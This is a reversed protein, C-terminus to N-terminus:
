PTPQPAAQHDGEPGEHGGLTSLRSPLRNWMMEWWWWGSVGRIAFVLPGTTHRRAIKRWNRKDIFSPTPKAEPHTHWEGVYTMTRGSDRWRRTAEEQHGPDRREFRNWLRRDAPLPTTCRMIQVHPGRYFGLLIGGAERSNEPPVCFSQTTEIVEDAVEVLSIGSRLIM